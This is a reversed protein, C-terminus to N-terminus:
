RSLSMMPGATFTGDIERSSSARTAGYRARPSFSPRKWPCSHGPEISSISISYEPSAECTSTAGMVIATSLPSSSDTVSWTFMTLAGTMAWSCPMLTISDLDLRVRSKALAIEVRTDGGRSM